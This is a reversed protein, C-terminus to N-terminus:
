VLRLSLSRSSIAESVSRHYIENDEFPSPSRSPSESSSFLSNTSRTAPKQQFIGELTRVREFTLPVGLDKALSMAHTLQPYQNGGTNVHVPKRLLAHPNSM